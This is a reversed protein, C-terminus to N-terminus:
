KTTVTNGFAVCYGLRSNSVAIVRADHEEAAEKWYGGDHDEADDSGTLPVWLATKPVDLPRDPSDGRLINEDETEPWWTKENPKPKESESWRWAMCASALCFCAIDPRNGNRNRSSIARALPCWKTKAEEETVTSLAM